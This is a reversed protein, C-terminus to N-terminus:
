KAGKTEDDLKLLTIKCEKDTVLCKVGTHKAIEEAITKREDKKIRLNPFEFLLTDKKTNISLEKM